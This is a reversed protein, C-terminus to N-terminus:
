PKENIIALAKQALSSGVDDISARHGHGSAWNWDDAYVKLAENAVRLKTEFRDLTANAEKIFKEWNESVAAYGARCIRLEHSLQKCQEELDVVKRDQEMLWQNTQNV